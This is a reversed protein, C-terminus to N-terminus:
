DQFIPELMPPIAFMAPFTQPSLLQLGNLNRQQMSEEVDVSLPLFRPQKMALIFGVIEGYSPVFHLYPYVAPFFFKVNQTTKKSFPGLVLPAGVHMGIVGNASLRSYAYQYFEKTFLRNACEKPNTTDMIIVDFSHNPNKIFDAADQIITQVRPDDFVGHHICHLQEKALEVVLPDIDVIMCSQVSPHKVVEKASGGDGGGCVLIHRPEPHCLMPVHVLPEHYFFEDKETCQMEEDLILTRGFAKTQVVAIEQLDSKRTALIEELELYHGHGPFDRDAFKPTLRAHERLHIEPQFLLEIEDGLTLARSRNSRLFDCVSIEVVALQDYEPWTHIVIHSEALIIALTYGAGDFSYYTHNLETLDSSRIAQKVPEIVQRPDTLYGPNCHCKQLLIRVNTGSPFKKPKTMIM